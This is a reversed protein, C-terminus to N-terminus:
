VADVGDFVSSLSATSLLVETIRVKTLIGSDSLENRNLKLPDQINKRVKRGCEYQTFAPDRFFRGISSKFIFKYDTKQMKRTLFYMKLLTENKKWVASVVQKTIM